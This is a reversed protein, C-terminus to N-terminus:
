ATFFLSHIMAFTDPTPVKAIRKYSSTVHLSCFRDDFEKRLFWNLIHHHHHFVHRFAHNKESVFIIHNRLLDPIDLLKTVVFIWIHFQFKNLYWLIIEIVNYSSQRANDPFIRPNPKSQGTTTLHKQNRKPTNGCSHFDALQTDIWKGSLFNIDTTRLHDRGIIMKIDTDRLIDHQMATQERLLRSTDGLPFKGILEPLIDPNHPIQATSVTSIPVFM